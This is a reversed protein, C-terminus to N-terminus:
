AAGFRDAEEEPLLVWRGRVTGRTASIAERIGGLRRGSSDRWFGRSAHILRGGNADLYRRLAEADPGVEPHFRRAMKMGYGTAAGVSEVPEVQVRKGMGRSSAVESLREEDTFPGWQLGHVHHQGRRANPEVFYVVNWACGRLQRLDGGIRNMRARITQWDEGAETFTLFREARAMEVAKIIRSVM